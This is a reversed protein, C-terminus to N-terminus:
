PKVGVDNDNGPVNHTNLEIQGAVNRYRSQANPLLVLVACEDMISRPGRLTEIDIHIPGTRRVGVAQVRWVVCAHRSALLGLDAMKAYWIVAANPESEM